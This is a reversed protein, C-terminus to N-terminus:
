SGQWHTINELFIQGYRKLKVDGVGDIMAMESLTKPKQIAFAYLTKDHFIVYPPVSKEKALKLRIEKLQDFLTM